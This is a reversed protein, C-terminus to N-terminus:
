KKVVIEAPGVDKTTAVAETAIVVPQGAIVAAIKDAAKEQKHGFGLFQFSVSFMAMGAMIETMNIPDAAVGHLVLGLATLVGSIVGTWLKWGTM